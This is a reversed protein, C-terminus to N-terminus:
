GPLHKAGVPGPPGETAPVQGTRGGGGEEARRGRVQLAGVAAPRARLTGDRLARLHPPLGLGHRHPRGPEM